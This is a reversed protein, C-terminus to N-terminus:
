HITFQLLTRLLGLTKIDDPDIGHAKMWEPNDLRSLARETEEPTMSLIFDALEQKANQDANM